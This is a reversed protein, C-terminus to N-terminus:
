VKEDERIPIVFRLERRVVKWHEYFGTPPLLVWVGNVFLQAHLEWHQPWAKNWENMTQALDSISQYHSGAAGTYASTQEWGYVSLM